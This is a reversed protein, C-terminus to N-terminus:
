LNNASFYSIVQPVASSFGAIDLMNNDSPDAITFDNAECAVVVLKANAKGSENRYQRLAKAPSCQHYGTESDTYVCFTDIDLRRREAEIM